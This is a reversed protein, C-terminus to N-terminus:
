MREVIGFMKQSRGNLSNVTSFVPHFTGQLAEVTRKRKGLSPVACKKASKTSQFDPNHDPGSRNLCIQFISPFLQKFITKLM